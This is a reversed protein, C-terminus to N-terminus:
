FWWHAPPNEIEGFIGSSSDFELGLLWSVGEVMSIALAAKAQRNQGNSTMEM